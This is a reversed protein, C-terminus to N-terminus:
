CRFRNPRRHTLGGLRATPEILVVSKDMKRRQIAAIVGSAAGGYVVVEFSNATLNQGAAHPPALLLAAPALL